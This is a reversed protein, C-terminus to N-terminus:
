IRRNTIEGYNEDYEVNYTCLLQNNDDENQFVYIKDYLVNNCEIIIDIVRDLNQTTVFTCLLQTKM